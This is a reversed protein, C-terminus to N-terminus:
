KVVYVRFVGPIAEMAQVTEASIPEELDLLTYALTNRSVNSMNLINTHSLATTFQCRLRLAVGYKLSQKLSKIISVTSGVM